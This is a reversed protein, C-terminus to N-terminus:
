GNLKEMFNFGEEFDKKIKGIISVSFKFDKIDPISLKLLECQWTWYTYARKERALKLYNIRKNALYTDWNSKGAEVELFELKYKEKTGRVLLADPKLYPNHNPFRPYLLALFDPLKLAQIFVETNNLENIAGKGEISEPLLSIDKGLQELLQLSKDTSILIDNDTKKILGLEILRAIKDPSCTKNYRKNIKSIQNRRIYKVRRINYLMDWVAEYSGWSNLTFGSILKQELDDIDIKDKL